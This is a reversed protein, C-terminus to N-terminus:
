AARRADKQLGADVYLRIIQAVQMGTRKAVARLQKVQEETLFVTTRKMLPMYVGEAYKEALLIEDGENRASSPM